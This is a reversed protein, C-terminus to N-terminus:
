PSTPGPWRDIPTATTMCEQKPRRTGCRTYPMSLCPLAIGSRGTLLLQSVFGRYVSLLMCTSVATVDYVSGNNLGALLWLTAQEYDLQNCSIQQLTSYINAGAALAGANGQASTADYNQVPLMVHTLLMHVAGM